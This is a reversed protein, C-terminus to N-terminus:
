RADSSPTKTPKLGGIAGTIADAARKVQSALEALREDPMRVTPGSVSVGAIAEGHENYISAAICRMGRHREEDDLSWGRRRIRELDELLAAPTSLTKDTFGPLGKKQLIARVRDDGLDALLAKGIGSAHMPGRAGPRFFARIPEDTEIQSVFVVDGDQAIALNATEGTQEMLLRMIPRGADVVNTGRAFASGARFTEVGVSWLGREEENRVFGHAEMTTLMRYATAPSLGAQQSLDTLTLGDSRALTKLLLLARDLTQVSGATQAPKALRPRGRPKRPTDTLTM